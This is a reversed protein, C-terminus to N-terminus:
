AGPGGARRDPIPLRTSVGGKKGAFLEAGVPTGVMTGVGTGVGTGDKGAPEHPWTAITQPPVAVPSVLAICSEVWCLPIPEAAPSARKVTVMVSGVVM